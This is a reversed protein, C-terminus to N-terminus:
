TNKFLWKSFSRTLFPMIYFTMGAIMCMSIIVMKYVLPLAPSLLQLLSSLALIIPFAACWALLAMKWQKPSTPNPTRSKPFWFEIGEPQHIISSKEIFSSLKNTWELRAQSSEWHLYAEKSDFRILLLYENSQSNSPPIIQIDQFGKFQKAQKIVARLELEFNEELDRKIFHSIVITFDKNM